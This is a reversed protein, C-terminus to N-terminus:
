IAVKRTRVTADKRIMPAHLRDQSKAPFAIGVFVQPPAPPPALWLGLILIALALCAAPLSM